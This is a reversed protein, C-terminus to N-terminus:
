IQPTPLQRPPYPERQVPHVGGVMREDLCDAVEEVVVLDNRVCVKIRDVINDLDIWLYIDNTNTRTDDNLNCCSTSSSQSIYRTFFPPNLNLNGTVYRM